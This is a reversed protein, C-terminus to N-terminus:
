PGASPRAAAPTPRAAPVGAPRARGRSRDWRYAAASLAIMGLTGFPPPHVVFLSSCAMLGVTLRDAGAGRLAVAAALAVVLWAVGGTSGAVSLNGTLWNDDFLRSIASETWADDAESRHGAASLWGTALGAVADFASFFVLFVPLVARAVVASTSRIGDVLFWICYALLVSLVLQALHVAIWRTVSDGLHGPHASPHFLTLVAFAVPTGITIARRIGEVTTGMARSVGTVTM